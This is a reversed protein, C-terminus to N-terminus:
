FGWEALHEALVAYFRLADFSRSWGIQEWHDAEIEGVVEGWKQSEVPVMGDNAGVTRSLFTYGPILLANVPRGLPAVAAVVSSYVVGTADTVLRNFEQMRATTLDYLGDVNVGVRHLLRRSRPWEGIFMAGSDAIPTGRHPTGITTLSAVRSHLGLHTIAYRADLGGMSHAIINVREARMSEIQRALQAARYPIGATPSTRALHVTYGLAELRNRVGVFYDRRAKRIGVSAFGFYGHALVIPHRTPPPKRLVVLPARSSVVLEPLTLRRPPPAGVEPGPPGFAHDIEADRELRERALGRQVFRVRLVVLAAVVLLVVVWLLRAPEISM